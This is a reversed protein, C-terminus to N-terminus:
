QKILKVNKRLKGQTIDAFYIGPRLGSGIEITSNPTVGNIREVIRGSVDVLVVTIDAKQESILQLKFSNPSPNSQVIVRLDQAGAHQMMENFPSRLRVSGPNGSWPSLRNGPIPGEGTGNPMIWGVSLHDGGSGEKHLTEIYYRAGRVLRVPASKQSPSALWSRFGVATNVSAIKQINAPNDDQSLWLESQEDSSLYFTYDGTFPACIYGRVRGGYNDLVDPGYEFSNLQAVVDPNSPYNPHSTLNSISTGPINTYGYVTISGSGSCEGVNINVTDSSGVAGQNDTAKAIIRYLGPEVGSGSFEYPATLDEALKQAGGAMYFFEVKSITGDSDSAAARINITNAGNFVTGSIPETISIRPTKNVPSNWVVTSNGSYIFDGTLGLDGNAANGIYFFKVTKQAQTPNTPATWRLNNYSFSIGSSFVANLHSLEELNLAANPNTSSFSGVPQNNLDRAAISFGWRGRSTPHSLNISFDYSRGEEYIGAPLGSTTIGGGGTNFNGHCQACTSPGDAGTYNFPPKASYFNGGTVFLFIITTVFFVAIYKYKM